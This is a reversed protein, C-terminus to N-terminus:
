EPLSPEKMHYGHFIYEDVKIIGDSGNLSARFLGGKEQGPQKNALLETNNKKRKVREFFFIIFERLVGQRIGFVQEASAIGIKCFFKAIFLIDIKNQIFSGGGVRGEEEAVGMQVCFGGDNGNNVEGDPFSKIM